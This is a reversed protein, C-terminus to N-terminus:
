LDAVKRYKSNYHLLPKADPNLLEGAVIEGIFIDHDGGAAVEVIKCDLYGLSETFVPAGTEAFKHPVDSFDKPGKQAFKNSVAEQPEALFNMAYFKANTLHQWMGARKDVCVLILPPNLSLSAIATATMGQLTGDVKTTVVTVGSAFHGMVKRQVAADFAM